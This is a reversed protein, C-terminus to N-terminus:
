EGPLDDDTIDVGDPVNDPAVVKAIERFVANVPEVQVPPNGPTIIRPIDTNTQIVLVAKKSPLYYAGTNYGPLSGTHGIWGNFYGIGLGYKFTPSGFPAWNLRERQMEPSLLTGEGLAKTWTKLDQLDSTLQGAANGWSPNFFTADAESGDPTQRTYGHSFPSPMDAGTPWSTHGLGLPKFIRQSFFDQVPMGSVKEIVMGLLVTNTNSYDISSGPPTFSFSSPKHNFGADVLERATYTRYPNAQLAEVWPDDKTYSYLGSTMNAMQRLTINQGNPVFDLYKSVPDDLSLKKDDALQLIATVTFTKTISGIRTHMGAVIPAQTQKDEVGVATEWLGEGPIYLSVIVGPISLAARARSLGSELKAQTAQPFPPPPLIPSKGSGSGCGGIGVSLLVTAVVSAAPRALTRFV